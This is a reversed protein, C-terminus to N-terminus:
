GGKGIGRDRRARPDHCKLEVQYLQESKRPSLIGFPFQIDFLNRETIPACKGHVIARTLLRYLRETILISVHIKCILQKKSICINYM